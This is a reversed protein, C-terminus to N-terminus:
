DPKSYLLNLCSRSCNLDPRLTTVVTPALENKGKIQLSVQGYGVLLERSIPKGDDLVIARSIEVFIQFSEFQPVEDAQGRVASLARFRLLEGFGVDPQLM